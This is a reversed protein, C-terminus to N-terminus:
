ARGIANPNNATAKSQSAQKLLALWTECGDELSKIVFELREISPTFEQTAM